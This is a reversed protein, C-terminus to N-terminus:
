MHIGGTPPVHTSAAQEFTHTVGYCRMALVTDWCGTAKTAAVPHTM